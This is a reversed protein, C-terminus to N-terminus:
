FSLFVEMSSTFITNRISPTIGIAVGPKPMFRLGIPYFVSTIGADNRYNPINLGPHYNSTQYHYSLDTGCFLSLTKVVRYELYLPLSLEFIQSSEKWSYAKILSKFKIKKENAHYFTASYDINAGFNVTASLYELKKQIFASLQATSSDNFVRHHKGSAHFLNMSLGAYLNQNEFHYIHGLEVGSTIRTSITDHTTASSVFDTETFYLTDDLHKGTNKKMTGFHVRALWYDNNWFSFGSSIVGTVDRQKVTSVTNLRKWVDSNATCQDSYGAKGDLFLSLGRLYKTNPVFWLGGKLASFTQESHQMTDMPDFRNRNTSANQINGVYAGAQGQACPFGVSLFPTATSPSDSSPPVGLSHHNTTFGAGVNVESDPAAFGPLRLHLSPRIRDDTIPIGEPITEDGQTLPFSGALVGGIVNLLVISVKVTQYYSM